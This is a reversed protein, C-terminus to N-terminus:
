GVAIPATRATARYTPCIRASDYSHRHRVVVVPDEAHAPVSARVLDLLRVEAQGPLQVGVHVRVRRQLLPELFDRLRVLHERIRLLALHVVETGVRKGLGPRPRAAAEARGAEREAVEDVREEAAPGRRTARAAPGPAPAVRRDPHVQVQRLAREARGSLEDDVGGDHARGTGALAGRWARVRDRAIDAM